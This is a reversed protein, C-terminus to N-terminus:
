SKKKKKKQLSHEQRFLIDRLGSLHPRFLSRSSFRCAVTVMTVFQLFQLPRSLSVFPTLPFFSICPLEHYNSTVSIVFLTNSRRFFWATSFLRRLRLYHVTNEKAPVGSPDNTQNKKANASMLHFHLMIQECVGQKLIWDDAGFWHCSPSERRGAFCHTDRCLAGPAEETCGKLCDDNFLRM